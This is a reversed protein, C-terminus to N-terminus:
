SVQSSAFKKWVAIDVKRVDLKVINQNIKSNLQSSHHPMPKVFKCKKTLM